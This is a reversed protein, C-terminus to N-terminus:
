SLITWDACLISKQRKLRLHFHVTIHNNFFLTWHWSPSCLWVGDWYVFLLMLHKFLSISLHQVCIWLSILASSFVCSIDALSFLPHSAPSPLSSALGLAGDAVPSNPYTLLTPAPPAPPTSPPPQPMNWAFFAAQLVLLLVLKSLGSLLFPWHRASAPGSIPSGYPQEQSSFKTEHVAKFSMFVSHNQSKAWWVSTIIDWPLADQQRIQGSWVPDVWRPMGPLSLLGSLSGGGRGEERQFRFSHAWWCTKSGQTLTLTQASPPPPHLIVSCQFLAEGVWTTCLLGLFGLPTSSVWTIWSIPSSLCKWNGLLWALWSSEIGACGMFVSAKHCGGCSCLCKFVLTM